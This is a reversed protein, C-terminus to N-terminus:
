RGGFLAAARRALWVVLTIWIAAILWGAMVDTTWHVGLYVRSWGVGAALVLALLRGPWAPKALLAAVVLALGLFTALSQTAHGSPFSTTRGVDTLWIDMPPRQRQVFLKILSYLGLGGAWAAILLGALVLRRRLLLTAAVVGAVPILVTQSGVTSLAHALTTLGGTRHAVVWSTISSDFATSGDPREALELLEGCAIACGALVAFSILLLATLTAPTNTRVL